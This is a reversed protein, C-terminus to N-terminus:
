SASLEDAIEKVVAATDTTRVEETDSDKVDLSNLSSVAVREDDTTMQISVLRANKYKSLPVSGGETTDIIESWHTNLTTRSCPVSAAIASKSFGTAHLVRIVPYMSKPIGAM